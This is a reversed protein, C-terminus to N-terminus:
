GDAFGEPLATAWLTAAQAELLRTVDAEVYGLYAPLAQEVQYAETASILVRAGRAPMAVEARDFLVRMATDHILAVGAGDPGAEARRFRPRVWILRGATAGPLLYCSRVRMTQHVRAKAAGLTDRWDAM